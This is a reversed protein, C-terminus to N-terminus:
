SRPPVEGASIEEVDLAPESTLVPEAAEDEIEGLGPKPVSSRGLHFRRQTLGAIGQPFFVVLLLYVVGFVLLPQGLTQHLWTPGNVVFSEASLVNLYHNLYRILAAGVVAGWLSGAGGIIVMLLLQITLDASFLSTSVSGVFVAYLAGALSCVTGAIVYAMLKYLFPRYGIMLARQENERVAQWVRGAPSLVFLRLLLYGLVLIALAVYYFHAQNGPATLWAPTATISLGTEGNTNGVGSDALTFAGQAFALTVMAFYVGRTRLALVGTVVSLIIGGILALLFGEWLPAHYQTVDVALAYAGFGVFLAQGFSILGTFGFVLDYSLAFLAFIFVETPLGLNSPALVLPLLLLLVLVIGGILWGRRWHVRGM